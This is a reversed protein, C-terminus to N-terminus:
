ESHFLSPAVCAFEASDAAAMEAYWFTLSHFLSPPVYDIEASDAAAMEPQSTLFHSTLLM